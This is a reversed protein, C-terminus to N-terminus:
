GDATVRLHGERGASGKKFTGSGEGGAQGECAEVQRSGFGGLGRRESWRRMRAQEEIVSIKRANAGIGPVRAKGREPLAHM